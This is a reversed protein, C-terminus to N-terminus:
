LVSVLPCDNFYKELFSQLKVDTVSFARMNKPDGYKSVAYGYLMLLGPILFYKFPINGVREFYEKAFGGAYFIDFAHLDGFSGEENRGKCISMFVMGDLPLEAVLEADQPFDDQLINIIRRRMTTLYEFSAQGTFPKMGMYFLILAFKLFMGPLLKKARLASVLADENFPIRYDNNEAILYGEQLRLQMRENNEDLAWFFHTGVDKKENWTGVVGEFEDLVRKRLADNFLMQYIFSEKENELVYILYDIVIGDYEVSILNPIDKRMKEGFLLPWLYFNIKTLQDGLYECTSFDIQQIIHTIRELFKQEEPTYTHWQHNRKLKDVIDFDYTHLGYIVRNKDAKPYLNVKKGHFQIGRRRFYENLSVNGTAFSVIDGKEKRAFLRYFNAVLPISLFGPPDLIGHHEVIGGAIGQDEAIQIKINKREVETFLSHIKEILKKKFFSQRKLYIPNPQYLNIRKSYNTLTETNTFFPALSPMLAVIENAIKNIKEEPYFDKM